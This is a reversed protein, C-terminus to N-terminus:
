MSTCLQMIIISVIPHAVQGFLGVKYILIWNTFGKSSSHFIKAQKKYFMIWLVKSILLFVINESRIKPNTSSTCSQSQTIPLTALFYTYLYISQCIYMANTIRYFFLYYEFFFPSSIFFLCLLTNFASFQHTLALSSIDSQQDLIKHM